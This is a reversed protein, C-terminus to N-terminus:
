KTGRSWMQEHFPFQALLAIRVSEAASKTAREAAEQAAFQDTVLSRGTQYTADAFRETEYIVEDQWRVKVRITSRVAAQRPPASGDWTKSMQGPLSSVIVAYELDPVDQAYSSEFRMMFERYAVRETQSKPDAIRFALGMEKEGYVPRFSTCGSLFVTTASLMMLLQRRNLKNM